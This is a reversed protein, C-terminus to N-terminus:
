SKKEVSFKSKGCEMRMPHKYHDMSFKASKRGYHMPHKDHDM